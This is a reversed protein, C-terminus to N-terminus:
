QAIGDLTVGGGPGGWRREGVPDRAHFDEIGNAPRRRGPALPRRYLRLAERGFLTRTGSANSGQRSSSIRRRRVRVYNRRDASLLNRSSRDLAPIM